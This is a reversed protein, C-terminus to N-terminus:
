STMDRILTLPTSSEKTWDYYTPIDEDVPGYGPTMEVPVWGINDYFVEVWAHGNRDIVEAEYSGDEQQVFSAPKVIYGTVYRAPVGLERLLLVGASAYHKCYGKRHNRLFHEIPDEGDELMDLDWSYISNSGTMIQQVACVIEYRRSNDLEGDQTGVPMEVRWGEQAFLEMLLSLLSLSIEVQEGEQYSPYTKEMYDSGVLEELYEYSIYVHDEPQISVYDESEIIVQNTGYRRENLVVGELYDYIPLEKIYDPANMYREKVYDNYWSWFAKEGELEEETYIQLLKDMSYNRNAPLGFGNSNLGHFSLNKKYGTKRAIADHLLQLDTRDKM